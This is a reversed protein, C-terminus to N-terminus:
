ADHDEHVYTNWGLYNGLAEALVDASHSRTMVVHHEFGHHCVYHLLHQLRPVEAVARPGDNLMELGVAAVLRGRDFDLEFDCAYSIPRM